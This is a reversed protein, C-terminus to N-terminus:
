LQKDVIEKAIIEASASLEELSENQVIYTFNNYNDLAIESSHMQQAKTLSSEYNPRVIRISTIDIGENYWWEIENPFRCDGIIAIDYDFHLLQLVRFLLEIWYNGEYFQRGRDTGLTQLLQRGHEDKIGDWGYYQKCIFKLIDAYNVFVVKKGLGELETKLFNSFTTKGSEAKGSIGIVEM